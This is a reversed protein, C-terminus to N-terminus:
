RASLPAPSEFVPRLAQWARAVASAYRAKRGPTASHYRGIGGWGPEEETMWRLIQSGVVVNVWADLLDTPRLGAARLMPGWTRWNVQMLGIDVDAHPLRRLVAEAEARTRPWVPTGAVNLAWPWGRSEVWIVASVLGPAVGARAAAHELLPRLNQEEAGARSALAILALLALGLARLAGM